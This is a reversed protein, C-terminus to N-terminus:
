SSVGSNKRATEAVSEEMLERMRCLEISIDSLIGVVGWILISGFVGGLMIIIGRMLSFFNPQYLNGSYAEAILYGGIVIFPLMTIIMGLKALRNIDRTFNM